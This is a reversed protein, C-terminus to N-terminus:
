IFWDNGKTNSVFIPSSKRVSQEALFEGGATPQKVKLPDVDIGTMLNTCASGMNKTKNSWYFFSDFSHIGIKKIYCLKHQFIGTTAIL